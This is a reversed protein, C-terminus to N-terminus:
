LLKMMAENPLGKKRALSHLGVSACKEVRLLPVQRLYKSALSPLKLVVFTPLPVQLLVVKMVYSVKSPIVTEPSTYGM